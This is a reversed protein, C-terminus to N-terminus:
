TGCPSPPRGSPLVLSPRKGPQTVVTELTLLLSHDEPRNKPFWSINERLGGECMSDEKGLVGKEQMGTLVLNRTRWVKEEKHSCSRCVQSHVVHCCPGLSMHSGPSGKVHSPNADGRWATLLHPASAPRAGALM